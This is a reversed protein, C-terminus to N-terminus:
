AGGALRAVRVARRGLSSVALLAAGCLVFGIFLPVPRGAPLDQVLVRVAAAALVSWAFWGAEEAGLRNRMAALVVAASALVTTRVPAAAASPFVAHLVTIAGLGAGAAAVALLVAASLRSGGNTPDRRRWGVTV